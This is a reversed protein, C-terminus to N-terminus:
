VIQSVRDVRCFGRVNALGTVKKFQSTLPRCSLNSEVLQFNLLESTRFNWSPLALKMNEGELLSCCTVRCERGQQCGFASHNVKLGALLRLKKSVSELRPMRSEILAERDRYV